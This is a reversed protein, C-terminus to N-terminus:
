KGSDPLDIVVVTGVRFESSCRETRSREGALVVMVDFQIEDNRGM